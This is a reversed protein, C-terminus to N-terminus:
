KQIKFYCKSQNSLTISNSFEVSGHKLTTSYRGVREYPQQCLRVESEEGGLFMIGMVM